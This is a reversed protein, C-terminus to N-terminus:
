QQTKGGEVKIARPDLKWWAGCRNQTADCDIFTAMAGDYVYAAYENRNIKCARFVPTSRTFAEVGYPMNRDIVCDEFTGRAEHSVLVGRGSNDYLRCRRVVADAKRTLEIGSIVAAAFESDEITAVAGDHLFVGSGGTTKCRRVVLNVANLEEIACGGLVSLSCDEVTAGGDSRVIIGGCKGWAKLRSRLVTVRGQTEVLVQCPDNNSMECDEVLAIGRTSVLVAAHLGNYMLCRRVTLEGGDLAQAGGRDNRAIESDEVIGKGGLICVGGGDKGDHIRSFRVACGANPGRAAVCAMSGSTVDCDALILAGGDCRVGFDKSGPQMATAGRLTLSFAVVKPAATVLVAASENEIVVGERPGEGVLTVEKTIHLAERYTGPSILITSKPLASSIAKSITPYDQPVIITPRQVADLKASFFPAERNLPDYRVARMLAAEATKANRRDANTRAIDVCQAAAATEWHRLPVRAPGVPGIRRCKSFESLAGECDGRGVMAAASLVHETNSSQWWMCLGFLLAAPVVVPLSLLAARRWSRELQDMLPLAGVRRAVPM